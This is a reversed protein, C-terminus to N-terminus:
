AGEPLTMQFFIPRTEGKLHGAHCGINFGTYEYRFLPTIGVNAADCWELGSRKM